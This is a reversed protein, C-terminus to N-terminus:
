GASLKIAKQERKEEEFKSVNNRSTNEVDHTHVMFQM